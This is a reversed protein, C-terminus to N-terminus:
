CSGMTPTDPGMLLGWKIEKFVEEPTPLSRGTIMAAGAIPQPYLKGWYWQPNARKLLGEEDAWIVRGHSGNVMEVIDTRLWKYVPELKRGDWEENRITATVPDIILVKM